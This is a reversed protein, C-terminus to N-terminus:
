DFLHPHEGGCQCGPVTKDHEAHVNRVRTVLCHRCRDTRIGELPLRLVTHQHDWRHWGRGCLWARVGSPRVPAAIDPLLLRMM